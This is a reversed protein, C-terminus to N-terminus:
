KRVKWNVAWRRESLGASRRGLPKPRLRPSRQRAFRAQTGRRAAPGQQAALLLILREFTQNWRSEALARGCLGEGLMSWRDM